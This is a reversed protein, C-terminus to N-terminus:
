SLVAFILTTINHANSSKWIYKRHVTSHTNFCQGVSMRKLAIQTISVQLKCIVLRKTVQATFLTNHTSKPQTICTCFMTAWAHAQFPSIHILIQWATVVQLHENYFVEGYKWYSGATSWSQKFETRLIESVSKYFDEASLEEVPASFWESKNKQPFDKHTCISAHLKM